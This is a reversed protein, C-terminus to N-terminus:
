RLLSVVFTEHPVWSSVNHETPVTGHKAIELLRTKDSSSRCKACDGIIGLILIRACVHTDSVRGNSDSSAPCRECGGTGWSPGLSTKCRQKKYNPDANLNLRIMDFNELWECAQYVLNCPFGDRATWSNSM